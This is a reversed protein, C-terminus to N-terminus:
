LPTAAAPLPEGRDIRVDARQQRLVDVAAGVDGAQPRDAGLEGVAVVALCPTRRSPLAGICRLGAEDDFDVVLDGPEASRAADRRLFM